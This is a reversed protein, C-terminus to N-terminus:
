LPLTPMLVFFLAVLAFFLILTAIMFKIINIEETYLLNGIKNIVSGETPRDINELGEGPCVGMDSIGIIEFPHNYNFILATVTIALACLFPILLSEGRGALGWKPNPASTPTSSIPTLMIVFGFIITLASCYIIILLYSLYDMGAGFPASQGLLIAVTVVLGIFNFLINMPKREVIFLLGFIVILLKIGEM